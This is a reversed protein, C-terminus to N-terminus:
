GFVGIKKYSIGKEQYKIEYYTGFDSDCWVVGDEIHDLPEGSTPSSPILHSPFYVWAEGKVKIM